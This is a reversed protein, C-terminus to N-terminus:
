GSYRAATRLIKEGHEGQFGGDIWAEVDEKLGTLWVELQSAGEIRRQLRGLRDMFTPSRSQNRLKIQETIMSKAKSAHGSRMLYVSVEALTCLAVLHLADGAGREDVLSILTRIGGTVDAEHGIVACLSVWARLVAHAPYDDLQGNLLPQSQTRVFAILRNLAPDREIQGRQDIEMGYLRLLHFLPFLLEQGERHSLAEVCAIRRDDLGQEVKPEGGIGALLESWALDFQGSIAALHARQQHVRMIDEPDHFINLAELGIQHGREVLDDIVEGTAQRELCLYRTLMLACGLAEGRGEFNLEPALLSQGRFAGVMEGLDQYFGCVEDALAFGHEFELTDACSSAVNLQSKMITPLEDWRHNITERLQELKIRRQRALKLQGNHNANMLALNMLRFRAWDLQRENGQKVLLGHLRDFVDKNLRQILTEAVSYDRRRDVWDEVSDLMARLDSAREDSHEGALDEILEDLTEDLRQKALDSIQRLCLHELVFVIAQGVARHRALDEALHVSKLPHLEFDYEELEDLLEARIASYDRLARGRRFTCNSVLDSLRLAPHTRASASTVQGIIALADDESLGLGHRLDITLERNISRQYDLPEIMIPTGQQMVEYSLEGYAFLYDRGRYSKGLMVQAYILNIIPREEPLEHRLVQYLCVILEAVMRTYTTTVDGEGLGSNNVLRVLRWGERKTVKVVQAVKDARESHSIETAHDRIDLPFLELLAVPLDDGSRRSYQGSLLVGCIQSSPEGRERQDRLDREGFRGSEDIFLTYHRDKLKM